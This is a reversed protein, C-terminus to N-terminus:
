IWDLLLHLHCRVVLPTGATGVQEKDLLALAAAQQGGEAM